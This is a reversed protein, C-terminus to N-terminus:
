QRRTLCQEQVSEVHVLKLMALMDHPHSVKSRGLLRGSATNGRAQQRAMGLTHHQSMGTGLLGVVLAALEVLGVAWVVLAAWVVDASVKSIPAKGHLSQFAKNHGVSHLVETKGQHRATDRMHHQSKGTGLLGKVALVALVM